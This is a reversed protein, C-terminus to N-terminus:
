FREPVFVIREHGNGLTANTVTILEKLDEWEWIFDHSKLVYISADYEKELLLQIEGPVHFNKYLQNRCEQDYGGPVLEMEIETFFGTKMQEEFEDGIVSNQPYKIIILAKM